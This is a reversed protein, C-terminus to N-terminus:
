SATRRRSPGAPRRPPPPEAASSAAADSGARARAGASTRSARAACSLQAARGDHESDEHVRPPARERGGRGRARRGAGDRAVREHGREHHLVRGFEPGRARAVRGVVLVHERRGLRRLDDVRADRQHARGAEDRRREHVGREDVDDGLEHVARSGLVVGGRAARRRAPRACPGGGCICSPRALRRARSAAATTSSSRLRTASAGASMRSYTESCCTSPRSTSTSACKSLYAIRWRTLPSSRRM